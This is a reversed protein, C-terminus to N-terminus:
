ACLLVKALGAEEIKKRLPQPINIFELGIGKQFSIKKLEVLLALGSSNAKTIGHMDMIFSGSAKTSCDDFEQKLRLRSSADLLPLQNISFYSASLAKIPQTSPTLM